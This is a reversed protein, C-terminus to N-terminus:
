NSKNLLLTETYNHTIFYENKFNELYSVIEKYEKHNENLCDNYNQDTITIAIYWMSTRSIYVGDKFIANHGKSELASDILIPAVNVTKTKRKVEYFSFRYEKNKIKFPIDRELFQNNLNFKADVFQYFEGANKTDNFIFSKQKPLKRKFRKGNVIKYDEIDPAIILPICSSLIILILTTFITKM